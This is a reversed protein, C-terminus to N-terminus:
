STYSLTGEFNVSCQIYIHDTQTKEGMRDPIEGHIKFNDRFNGRSTKKDGRNSYGVFIGGTGTDM